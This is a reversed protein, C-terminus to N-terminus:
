TKREAQGQTPEGEERETTPELHEIERVVDPLNPHDFALGPAPVRHRGIDPPVHKRHPHTSALSADRPHPFDDYWYARERGAYVEYGCSTILGDDFDIEERLRLRFGNQFRVEGVAMGTCPSTSWVCVTSHEVTKRNLASAVFESYDRLSRLPHKAM